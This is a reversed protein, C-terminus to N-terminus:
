HDMAAARKLAEFQTDLEAVHKSIATMDGAKAAQEIANALAQLKEGGASGSAGKIKHAQQAVHCVDGANAYDKLQQIQGPLDSLFEDLVARALEEDNMVRKM